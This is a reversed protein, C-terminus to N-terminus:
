GPRLLGYSKAVDLALRPNERVDSLAKKAERRLTERDLNDLTGYVTRLFGEILPAEEPRCKTLDSIVKTYLSM